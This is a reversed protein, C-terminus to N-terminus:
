RITQDSQFIPAPAPQAAYPTPTASVPQAPLPLECKKEAAVRRLVREEGVVNEYDTRYALNGILVGGGGESARNM